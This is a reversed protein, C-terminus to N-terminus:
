SISVRDSSIILISTHLISCNKVEPKMKVRGIKHTFRNVSSQLTNVGKSQNQKQLSWSHFNLQVVCFFPLFKYKKTNALQFWFNSLLLLLWATIALANEASVLIDNEVSSVQNPPQVFSSYLECFVKPKINSM